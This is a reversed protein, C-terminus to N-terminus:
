KNTLKIDNIISIFLYHKHTICCLPVVAQMDNYLGRNYSSLYIFRSRQVKYNLSTLYSYFEILITKRATKTAMAVALRSLFNFFNFMQRCQHCKRRLTAATLNLQFCHFCRHRVSETQFFPQSQWFCVWWCKQLEAIWIDYRAEQKKSIYFHSNTTEPVTMHKFQSVFLLKWPILNM